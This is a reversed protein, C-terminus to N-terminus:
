ETPNQKKVCIICRLCEERNIFVKQHQPDMNEFKKLLRNLEAFDEAFGKVSYQSNKKEPFVWNGSSRDMDEGM